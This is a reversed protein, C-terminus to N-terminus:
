DMADAKTWRVIHVTQKFVALMQIAFNTHTDNTACYLIKYRLSIGKALTNILVKLNVSIDNDNLLLGNSFTASFLPLRLGTLQLRTLLFDCFYWCIMVKQANRM